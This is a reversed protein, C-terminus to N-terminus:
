FEKQLIVPKDEKKNMESDTISSGGVVGPDRHRKIPVGLHKELVQLRAANSLRDASAGTRGKRSRAEAANMENDIRTGFHFVGRNFYFGKPTKPDFV